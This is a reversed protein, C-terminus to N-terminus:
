MQGASPQIAEEAADEDRETGSGASTDAPTVGVSQAGIGFTRGDTRGDALWAPPRGALQMDDDNVGDGGEEEEEEM